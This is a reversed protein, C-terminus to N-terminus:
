PTIEFAVGENYTGGNTTVGFLNGKDDSTVGYPFEGDAGDFKHLM